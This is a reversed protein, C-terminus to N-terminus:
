RVRKSRGAWRVDTGDDPDVARMLRATNAADSGTPMQMGAPGGLDTAGINSASPPRTSRM